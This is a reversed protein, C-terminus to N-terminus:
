DDDSLYHRREFANDFRVNVHEAEDSADPLADLFAQHEEPDVTRNRLHYRVVRVDYEKRVDDSM